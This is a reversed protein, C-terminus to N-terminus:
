LVLPCEMTNLILLIGAKLCTCVYKINIYIKSYFKYQLLIEIFESMEKVVSGVLEVRVNIKKLQESNQMIKNFM